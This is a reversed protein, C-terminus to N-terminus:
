QPIKYRGTQDGHDGIHRMMADTMKDFKSGMEKFGDKFTTELKDFKEDITRAKYHEGAIQIKFANLEAENKDSASFAAELNKKLTEIEREQADDKRSLLWGIVGGFIGLIALGITVWESAGM